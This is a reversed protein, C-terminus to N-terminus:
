AQLTSLRPAQWHEPGPRNHSASSMVPAWSPRASSRGGNASAARLSSTSTAVGDNRDNEALRELEAQALLVLDQQRQRDEDAHDRQAGAPGGHKLADHV